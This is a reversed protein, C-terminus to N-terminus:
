SVRRRDSTSGPADVRLRGDDMRWRRALRGAVAEDHTAVILAADLEDAAELLVTIVRDAAERDLQGTPEDALILQPGAALVRAVAVRQAQGGSLEGPLSAGLERIRLRELAGRAREAAVPDPVGALLLPLAANELVDLDPLLSPGQFVIGVAGPRGLPPRGWAPWSVAGTTPRDLGAMMHLLTSKGSGSPGTLAVRDGRHVVCDAGHVAVVATPGAGYTHAAAACEVLVESLADAQPANM